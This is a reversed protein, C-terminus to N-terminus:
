NNEKEFPKCKYISLYILFLSVGLILSGIIDTLWHVQSLMRGVILFVMYAVEIGTIVHAIPKNKIYIYNNLIATSLFGISLLTTSSPYSTEAKGDIFVTRYNIPIFM